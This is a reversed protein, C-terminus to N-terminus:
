KIALHIETLLDEPKTKQKDKLYVEYPIVDRLKLGSAPLWDRYIANWTQWLTEYTGEHLFIAYKGGPITQIQVEEEPQIDVGEKLVFGGDYRCEEPPTLSPDDPYIALCVGVKSWLNNKTLYSCIVDFAADAAQTFINDVVGKKRVYIVRREPLDRIEPKM